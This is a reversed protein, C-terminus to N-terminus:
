LDIGPRQRYRGAVSKYLISEPFKMNKVSINKHEAIYLLDSNAITLVKLNILLVFQM